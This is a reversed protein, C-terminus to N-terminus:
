REDILLFYNFKNMFLDIATSDVVIMIMMMINVIMNMIM